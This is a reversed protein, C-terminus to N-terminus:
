EKFTMKFDCKPHIWLIRSLSQTNVKMKDKKIVSDNSQLMSTFKCLYRRRKNHKASFRNSSVFIENCFTPIVVNKKNHLNGELWFKLHVVCLKMEKFTGYIRNGAVYDCHALKM